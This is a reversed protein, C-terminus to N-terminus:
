HVTRTRPWWHFCALGRILEPQNLLARCREFLAQELDDLTQLHSMLLRNM